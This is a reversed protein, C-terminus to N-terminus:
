RQPRRAPHVTYREAEYDLTALVADVLGAALGGPGFGSGFDRSWVDRWRFIDCVMKSGPGGPRGHEDPTWDYGQRLHVKAFAVARDLDPDPTRLVLGRQATPTPGPTSPPSRTVSPLAPPTPAWSFHPGSATPWGSGYRAQRRARRPRTRRRTPRGSCPAAAPRHGVAEAQDTEAGAEAGRATLELSWDADRAAEVLIVLLTADPQAAVTATGRDGLVFRTRGPLM